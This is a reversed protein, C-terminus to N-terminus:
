VGVVLVAYFPFLVVWCFPSFCGQCSGLWGVFSVLTLLYDDIFLKAKSRLSYVFFSKLKQISLMDDNFTMRNKTKRVM